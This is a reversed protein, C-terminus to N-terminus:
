ELGSAGKTGMVVLDAKREKAALVIADVALGTMVLDEVDVHKGPEMRGTRFEKLQETTEEIMTGLTIDELQLESALVPIHRANLLILKAQLADSLEVAYHFANIANESFDTPVLITKM